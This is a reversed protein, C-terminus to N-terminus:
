EGITERDASTFVILLSADGDGINTAQHWVNPAIAVTDGENLETEGGGDITHKVRGKFVVLIESCNPHYHRPNSQGPHLLCRGVTVEESNGLARNAFWTLAGWEQPVVEAESM